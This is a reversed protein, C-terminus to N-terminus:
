TQCPPFSAPSSEYPFVLVNTPQRSFGANWPALLNVAPFTSRFSIASLRYGIASLTLRNLSPFTSRFPLQPPQQKSPSVPRLRPLPRLSRVFFLFSALCAIFIHLARLM